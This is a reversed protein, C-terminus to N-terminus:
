WAARTNNLPSLARGPQRTATLLLARLHFLAGATHGRSIHRPLHTETTASGGSDDGNSVASDGSCVSKVSHQVTDKIAQNHVRTLRSISSRRRLPARAGLGVVPGWHACM